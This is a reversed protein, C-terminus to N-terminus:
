IHGLPLYWPWFRVYQKQWENTLPGADSVIGVVLDEAIGSLAALSGVKLAGMNAPTVSGDDVVLPMGPTFGVGLFETSELEYAGVAVLGVLNGGSINGVDSSVDFDASNPFAFIPMPAFTDGGTYPCGLKFADATPDIHVVRGSRIVPEGAAIPKVKDVAYPSPWGKCPNLEHDFMQAPTVTGPM